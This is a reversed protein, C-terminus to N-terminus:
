ADDAGPTEETDEADLKVEIPASCNPCEIHMADKDQTIKTASAEITDCQVGVLHQVFGDMHRTIHKVWKLFESTSGNVHLKDM